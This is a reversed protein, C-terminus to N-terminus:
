APCCASGCRRTSPARSTACCRSSWSTRGATRTPRRSRATEGAPVHGAGYVAASSSVVLRRVGYWAMCRLLTFTTSLNTEYCDLPHAGGDRAAKVGALHVVADFREADFLRELADIDAADYAHV